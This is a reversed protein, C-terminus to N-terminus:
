KLKILPFVLVQQSARHSLIKTRETNSVRQHGLRKTATTFNKQTEELQQKKKVLLPRHKKM